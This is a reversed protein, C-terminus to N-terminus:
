AGLRRRVEDMSLLTGESAIRHRVEAVDEDSLTLEDDRRAYDIVAAAAVNQENHPLGRLAKIAQELLTAM